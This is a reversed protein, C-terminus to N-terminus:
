VRETIISFLALSLFESARNMRVVLLLAFSPAVFWSRSESLSKQRCKRLFLLRLTRESSSVKCATELAKERLSM